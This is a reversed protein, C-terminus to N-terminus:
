KSFDKEIISKNSFKLVNVMFLETCEFILLKKEGDVNAALYYFDKGEACEKNPTLITVKYEKGLVYKEFTESGYKGLTVIDQTNFSFMPKRKVNNLVKAVRISGTIFVYDYSIVFRYKIKTCYIGFIILLVFPIVTMVVLGIIDENTEPVKSFLTVFALVGALLYFLIALIKFTMYKKHAKKLNLNEVTEEYLVDIM